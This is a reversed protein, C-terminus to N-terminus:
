ASGQSIYISAFVLSLLSLKPLHFFRKLGLYRHIIRIVSFQTIGVCDLTMCVMWQLKPRFHKKEIKGFHKNTIIMIYAYKVPIECLLTCIYKRHPPILLFWMIAFQRCLTGTFSNQFDTSLQRLYPCFYLPVNKQGMRYNAGLWWVCLGICEWGKSGNQAIFFPV